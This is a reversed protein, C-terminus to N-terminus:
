TLRGIQDILDCQRSAMEQTVVKYRVAKGYLAMVEAGSLRGKEVDRRVADWRATAISLAAMQLPGVTVSDLFAESMDRALEYAIEERYLDDAEREMQEMPDYM